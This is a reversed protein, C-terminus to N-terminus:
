YVHTIYSHFSGHISQIIQQKVKLLDSFLEIKRNYVRFMVSLWTFNVSKQNPIM